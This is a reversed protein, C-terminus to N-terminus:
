GPVTDNVSLTILNFKQPFSRVSVDLPGFDTEHMVWIRVIQCHVNIMVARFTM